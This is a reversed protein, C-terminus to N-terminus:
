PMLWPDFTEGGSPAGSIAALAVLAAFIVAVVGVVILATLRDRHLQEAAPDRKAPKTRQRWHLGWRNRPLTTVSM